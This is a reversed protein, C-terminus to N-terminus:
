GFITVGLSLERITPWESAIGLPWRAAYDASRISPMESQHHFTAMECTVPDGVRRANRGIPLGAEPISGFQGYESEQLEQIIESTTIWKRASSTHVRCM